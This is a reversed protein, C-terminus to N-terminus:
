PVEKESWHKREGGRRKMGAAKQDERILHEVITEFERKEKLTADAPPAFFARMGTGGIEPIWANVEVEMAEGDIGTVTVFRRPADEDIWESAPPPAVYASQDNGSMMDGELTAM